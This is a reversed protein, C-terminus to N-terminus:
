ASDSEITLLLTGADVVDEPKASIEKVMGNNEAKVETEKKMVTLLAVTDGEKVRDGVNVNIQVVLAPM